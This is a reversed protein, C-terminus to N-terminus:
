ASVGGDVTYVGGTQFGAEDSLLYLVLDAIERPTAKRPIPRDAISMRGGAAARAQDVLDSMPTDVASPCVANVRIGDRGTEVAASKTLAIIAAKTPMFDQNGCSCCLCHRCRPTRYNVGADAGLRKAADVREDSGAAAIVRAGLHKAIQVAFSGLGGAAGTVLVWEGAQVKARDRLQTFALPAHRAVVPATAFDLENPILLTIRAPVTV